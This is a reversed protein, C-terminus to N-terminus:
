WIRLLGASRPEISGYDRKGGPSVAYKFLNPQNFFYFAGVPFTVLLLFRGSELRWGGM